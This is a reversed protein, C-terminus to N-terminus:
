LIVLIVDFASKTPQHSIRVRTVYWSFVIYDSDPKIAIPTVQYLNVLDWRM